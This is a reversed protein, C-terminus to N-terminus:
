ITSLQHRFLHCYRCCFFVPIFLMPLKTYPFLKEYLTIAMVHVLYVGFTLGSLKVVLSKIRAKPHFSIRNLALFAGVSYLFVPLGINEYVTNFDGTFQIYLIMGALSLLSLCYLFIRIWRKRIGIHMIYWGALYYSIYGAFFNLHFDKLLSSVYVLASFRHIGAELLPVVFQTALSIGLFLLVLNKNEKCVFAKLFPLALYIGIFMYLYWMHYHGVLIDQLINNVFVSNGQLLPIVCRYVLAFIIAWAVTILIINKLYHSFLRKLPLKKEEDLMLAGSVMLFFPVGIRSISDFINGWLFEPSAADYTSLFIGSCHIMVIAFVAIIRIVDLM